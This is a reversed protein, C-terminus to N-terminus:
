PNSGMQIENIFCHLIAFNIFFLLKKVIIDRGKEKLCIGATAKVSNNFFNPNFNLLCNSLILIGNDTDMWIGSIIVDQQIIKARKKNAFFKSMNKLSNTFKDISNGKGKQYLFYRKMFVRPLNELIRNLQSLFSSSVSIMPTLNVWRLYRISLERLTTEVYSEILFYWNSYIKSGDYEQYKKLISKFYHDYQLIIKNWNRNIPMSSDQVSLAQPTIIIKVMEISTKKKNDREEGEKETEEDKFVMTTGESITSDFSYDSSTVVRNMNKKHFFSEMQFIKNVSHCRKFIEFPQSAKDTTTLQFEEMKLVSELFDLNSVPTDNDIYNKQRLKLPEIKIPFTPFYSTGNPIMTIENKSKKSEMMRTKERLYHKTPM